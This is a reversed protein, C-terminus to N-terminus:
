RRFNVKINRNKNGFQSRNAKVKGKKPTMNVYKVVNLNNYKLKQCFLNACNDLITVPVDCQM